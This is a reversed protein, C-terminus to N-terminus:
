VAKLYHRFLRHFINWVLIEAERFLSNTLQNKQASNSWKKDNRPYIRLKKFEMKTNIELNM